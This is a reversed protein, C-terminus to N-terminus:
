LNKKNVVSEFGIKFYKEKLEHDKRTEGHHFVMFVQDKKSSIFLYICYPILCLLVISETLLLKNAISSEIQATHSLLKDWFFLAISALVTSAIKLATGATIKHILNPLDRM